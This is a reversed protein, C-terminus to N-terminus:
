LPIREHKMASRLNGVATRLAKVCPSDYQHRVVGCTRTGDTDRIERPCKRNEIFLLDTLKAWTITSARPKKPDANFKQIIYARVAMPRMTAPQGRKPQSFSSGRVLIKVARKSAELAEAVQDSKLLRMTEIAWVRAEDVATQPDIPGFEANNPDFRWSYLAVPLERESGFSPFSCYKLCYSEWVALPLDSKANRLLESGLNPAELDINKFAMFRCLLVALV